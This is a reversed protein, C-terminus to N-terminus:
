TRFQMDENVLNDEVEKVATIVIREYAALRERAVARAQDLQARRKGADFIPGTLNAALNAIWNDFLTSVGDGSYSLGANISLAPLRDARSAAVEWQESRLRLGAARVDPRMSLLDAPVGRPPLPPLQPYKRANLEMGMGPAMGTLLAISNLLVTERAQIGPLQGQTRQVTKEQQLVDLATSQSKEFRLRLLRALEQNTKIQKRVVDAELRTEILDVWNEALTATLTVAAADVDARRAEVNLQGGKARAAIRGWLDLEYSAALGLSSVKSVGTDHNDTHSYRGEGNVGPFLSSRLSRHQARAQELRARAEQISFNGGLAREMLLDLEPSQWSTWWTNADDLGRSDNEYMSYHSPLRPVADTSPDPHIGMCGALMPLCLLLVVCFKVIANLRM